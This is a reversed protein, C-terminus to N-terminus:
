SIVHPREYIAEWGTKTKFLRICRICKKETLTFAHRRGKPIIILDGPEATFKLVGQPNAAIEFVGEGQVTFRVEDESHHHEPSFKALIQDLNETTSDLAVLDHTLYDFRNKLAAIESDYKKLIAEGEEEPSHKVGWFEYPIKFEGLIMQIEKPTRHTKGNWELVAM